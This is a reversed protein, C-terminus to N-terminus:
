EIFIQFILPTYPLIETSVTTKTVANSTDITPSGYMNAYNYYNMYYNNYYGNGYYTNYYNYYNMYNMYDYYASMDTSTSTTSSGSQGTVGYAFSSTTVITAWSNYRLEPIAYYWATIYDDKDTAASYSLHTGKDDVKGYIIQKVEDINTDFIFGDLFRGIYWIKATANVHLSDAELVEDYSIGAGFREVLAANIRDNLNSESYVDGAAYVNESIQQDKIDYILTDAGVTNFNLPTAVPSYAYKVLLHEMTDVPQHWRGDFFELPRTDVEVDGEEGEEARSIIRRRLRKAEESEEKVSKHEECLGGNGEAFAEVRDGEYAVPNAV